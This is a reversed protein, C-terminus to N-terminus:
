VTAEFSNIIRKKRISSSREKLLDTPLLMPIPFEPTM